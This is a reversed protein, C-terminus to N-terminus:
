KKNNNFWNTVENPMLPLENKFVMLKLLALVEEGSYMRKEVYKYGAIFGEKYYLDYRIYNPKNEEISIQWSKEAVEELKSTELTENTSTEKVPKYSNTFEIMELELESYEKANYNEVCSNCADKNEKIDLCFSKTTCKSIPKLIAVEIPECYDDGNDAYVGTKIWGETFKVEVEKGVMDNSANTIQSLPLSPNTTAIIKKYILTNCIVHINERTCTFITNDLNIFLDGEKIESKDDVVYYYETKILKKM